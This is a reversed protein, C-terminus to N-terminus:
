RNTPEHSVVAHRDQKGAEEEGGEGTLCHGAVPRRVLLEGGLPSRGLADAGPQGRASEEVRHGDVPLGGDQLQGGEDQGASNEILPASRM